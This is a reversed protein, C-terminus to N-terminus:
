SDTESHADLIARYYPTMVRIAEEWAEPTHMDHLEVALIYRTALPGYGSQGEKPKTPYGPTGLAARLEITQAELFPTWYEGNTKHRHWAAATKQGYTEDMGVIRARRRLPREVPEYDAQAIAEPSITGDDHYSKEVEDKVWLAEVFAESAELAEEDSLHAFQNRDVEYFAELSEDRQRRDHLQFGSTIREALYRAKGESPADRRNVRAPRSRGPTSNTQSLGLYQSIRQISNM